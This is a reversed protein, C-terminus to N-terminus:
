RPRVITFRQGSRVLGRVIARPEGLGLKATRSAASNNSMRCRPLLLQYVAISGHALPRSGRRAQWTGDCCYTQTTLQGNAHYLSIWSNAVGNQPPLVPQPVHLPEGQAQSPRALWGALLGVLGGFWQRRSLVLRM